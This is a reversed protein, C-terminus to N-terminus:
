YGPNQQGTIKANSNFEDQPIPWSYSKSENFQLSNVSIASVYYAAESKGLRWRCIDFWWQGENFLEAWREYYLPNTGLVPDNIAKTTATLSAYDVPSVANIPYGYARRKVKNLYELATANDGSGKAAEAYLLYVDAMRLFYWNWADAQVTEMPYFLAAYKRYGWGYTNPQGALYSPKSVPAWNSGDFKLSDVWPQVTNVYLRPDALKNNRVNQAQQKYVPDMVRQPNSYSAPKSSNFNPNSVLTYYGLPYGFRKINQDHIDGNGTYGLGKASGETGDLGLASPSWIMGNLTTANPNNGYVGYDGMNNQDVNLEFLSEENFENATTGIFADRYKEYPMLTKGSNQIVDLLVPRAKAWDETFVYAKGLLGKAAWESIRGLDNGSWVKGKLLVASAQLDKEIFDWVARTKARPQQADAVNEPLTEYIPVGMKDAGTTGKIYSEGYFCELQFYYFARLFLAQGRIYALDQQDGPKASNKEFFDAAQLTVNCNKVGTYLASWANSSFTNTVSLNNSTWENWVLDSYAGNSTHTANAIAKPMLEFGYLALSRLNSYAPSLISQMDNMTKPYTSTSYADTPAVSVPDKKCGALALLLLYIYIKRNM